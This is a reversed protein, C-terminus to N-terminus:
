GGSRRLRIAVGRRNGGKDYFIATSLDGTFHTGDKRKYTLSSVAQGTKEREELLAALDPDSRDFLAQRDLQLFEQESYGFMKCASPNVSLIRGEGEPDTVMMADAANEFLARFREESERLNEEAQKRETIDVYTVM